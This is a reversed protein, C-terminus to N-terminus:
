SQKRRRFTSDWRAPDPEYASIVITQGARSDDAAVVHIPRAARFGLVLRSPYPTDEPYDEIVEGTQLVLRVDEETIQRQFMRQVAHVRFILREHAM